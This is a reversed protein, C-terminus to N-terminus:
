DRHRKRRALRDLASKLPGDELSDAVQNILAASQASPPSAKDLSAPQSYGPPRVKVELRTVPEPLHASLTSCVTTAQFRLLSACAADTTHIVVVQGIVNALRCRGSFPSPLCAQLLHDLRDLQRARTTLWKMHSDRACIDGLRQPKRSM